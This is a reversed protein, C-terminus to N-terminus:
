EAERSAEIWMEVEEMPFDDAVWYDDSEDPLVYEEYNESTIYTAEPVVLRPVDEGDLIKRAMATALVVESPRVCAIFGEFGEDAHEAWYKLFGNVNESTTFPAVKGAQEFARVAGLSMQGGQSWIADIQENATLWNAVTSQALAQDYNCNARHIINIEPHEAFVEEAGATRNDSTTTGATGELMIINGGDEGLYDVIAQALVRGYVFDNQSMTWVKDSNVTADKTVVVIGEDAAQELVPILATPSLCQIVIADVGSDIMNQVINIQRDTDNDPSATMYDKIAPDSECYAKFDELAQAQWSNGYFYPVYGITYGDEEALAFPISCVWVALAAVLLAIKKM